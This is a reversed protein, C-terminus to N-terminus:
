RRAARPSAISVLCWPVTVLSILAVPYLLWNAITGPTGDCTLNMLAGSASSATGLLPASVLLGWAATIALARDHRTQEDGPRRAIRSLSWGCAVTSCALSALVPLGYFLGPWPGAAQTVGHCTATLSRGARGMDDPSAVAAAVVLLIVLVAAQGLLLPTMRRPVYDRVRRPTLGATRVAGQPPPTLAGSVLVGAVACLGFTPISYLIGVGLGDDLSAVAHGAFVGAALGCWRAYYDARAPARTRPAPPVNDTRTNLEPM